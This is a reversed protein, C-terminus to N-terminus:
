FLNMSTTDLPCGRAEEWSGAVRSRSRTDMSPGGDNDDNSFIQGCVSMFGGSLTSM